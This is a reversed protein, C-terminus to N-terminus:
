EPPPRLGDEIRYVRIQQVATGVDFPVVDPEAVRLGRERAAAVFEPAAVRGPDAILAVGGPALARAIVEAVLAAYPREYLVDSALVVDYRPLDDPLARWDLLAARADHGDRALNVRAFALADEYYDSVTVDFGARGAAVAVVGVGCGLELLTRGAGREGLVREALVLSSPWVDAWYPLREDREFDEASILAEADRPRLVTYRASALAVEAEVVEFRRELDRELDREFERAHAAANAKV